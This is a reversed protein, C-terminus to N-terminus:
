RKRAILTHIAMCALAGALFCPSVLVAGLLAFSSGGEDRMTIWTAVVDVAVAFAYGVWLWPLVELTPWRHRVMRTLSDSFPYKLCILAFLIIGIISTPKLGRFGIAVACMAVLVLGYRVLTMNKSLPDM